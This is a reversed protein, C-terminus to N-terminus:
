PGAVLFAGPAAHMVKRGSRQTRVSFVIHRDMRSIENLTPDCVEFSIGQPDEFAFPAEVVPTDM